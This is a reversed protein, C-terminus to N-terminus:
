KSEGPPIVRIQNSVKQDGVFENVITELRCKQSFNEFTGSLTVTESKVVARLHGGMGYMRRKFLVELVVEKLHLRAM